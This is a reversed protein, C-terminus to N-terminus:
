SGIVLIARLADIEALFARNVRVREQSEDRELYFDSFNRGGRYLSLFWDRAEALVEADGYGPDALMKRMDRFATFPGAAPRGEAQLTAVIGDLRAIADDRRGRDDDM